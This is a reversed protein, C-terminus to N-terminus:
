RPGARRPWGPRACMPQLATRGGDLPLAIGTIGTIGAAADGCLFVAIDGRRVPLWLMLRPQLTAGRGGTMAALAAAIPGGQTPTEIGHGAAPASAQAMAKAIAQAIALGLGQISGRTSGIARATRGTLM